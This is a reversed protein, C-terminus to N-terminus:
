EVMPLPPEGQTAVVIQDGVKITGGTELLCNQGFLVKNGLKRYKALSLLPEKGQAGTQQNITTVQCRACPKVGHFAVEGVSFSRWTDEVHPTGGEFVLNPRFRDILLAEGTVKENLLNMSAHGLILFPYGDAFSVEEKQSVSFRPDVPRHSDKHMSVLTVTMGLRDSFWKSDEANAIYAKLTDDWVVVQRHDEGVDKLPVQHTDDEYSVFLWEDIIATEFLALQPHSRQSIFQGSDDVLMWRRDYQLGRDLVEASELSIGACGKIPYIFINSLTYM